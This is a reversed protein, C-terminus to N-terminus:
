TGFHAFNSSIADAIGKNYRTALEDNTSRGKLFFM